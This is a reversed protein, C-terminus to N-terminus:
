YGKEQLGQEILTLAAEEAKSSEEKAFRELSSYLESAITITLRKESPPTRGKEILEEVTADPSAEAIDVIKKRQNNSLPTMADLLVIAKDEDTQGTSDTAADLAQLAVKMDINEDEVKKKLGSTLRDFKVYESVRNIPLGLEEGVAKLSGYKRYLITCADILDKQNMNVRVLNETLSIALGLEPDPMESLIGAKIVKHGLDKCAFVRRQGAVIQYKGDDAKPAVVIPELLGVKSISAKLEDVAKDTDRTRAQYRGIVLDELPLDKIETIQIM